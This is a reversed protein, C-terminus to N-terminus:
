ERCPPLGVGAERGAWCAIRGMVEDAIGECAAEGAAVAPRFHLGAWLRSESCAASVEAANAFTVTLPASPTTPGYAGTPFERRMPFPAESGGVYQGIVDAAAKCLCASASPYESHPMTRVLPAWGDARVPGSGRTPVRTAPGLLAPLASVPRIADHRLKAAWVVVMGDYLAANTVFDFTIMQALSLNRGAAVDFLMPALSTLKADFWHSLVAQRDTAAATADVAAGVEACVHAHTAATATGDAPVGDGAPRDYTAGPCGRAVDAPSLEAGYPRRVAASRAALSSAPLVAPAAVSAHPATVRQTMYTGRGLVDEVLPVWRTLRAPADADNVPTYGTVTDAYPRRAVGSRGGAAGDQNFGDRRLRRVVRRGVVHGHCPPDSPPADDACDASLPPPAGGTAAASAAAVAAEAADGYLAGMIALSVGGAAESLSEPTRLAPPARASGRIAEGDATRVGEEPSYVALLNFWGRTLAAATRLQFPVEDNTLTAVVAGIAGFPLPPVSAPPPPVGAQLQATCDAASAAAGVAAVVAAVVVLLAPRRSPPRREAAAVARSPSM